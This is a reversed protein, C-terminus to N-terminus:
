STAPLLCAPAVRATSRTAARATGAPGGSLRYAPERVAAARGGANPYLRLRDAGDGVLEPMSESTSSWARPAKPTRSLVRHEDLVQHVALRELLGRRPQAAARGDVRRAEERGVHQSRREAGGAVRAPEDHSGVALGRRAEGGVEGQVEVALHGHQRRAAHQVAGVHRRRRVDDALALLREGRQGGAAHDDDSATARSSRKRGSSSCGPRELQRGAVLDGEVGDDRLEGRQAVLADLLHARAALVGHAAAEDVDVRREAIGSRTSNQPSSTSLRRVKETYECRVM